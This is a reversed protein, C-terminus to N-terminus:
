WDSFQITDDEEEKSATNNTAKFWGKVEQLVQTSVSRATKKLSALSESVFRDVQEEKDLGHHHTNNGDKEARMIVTGLLTDKVKEISHTEVDAVYSLLATKATSILNKSHNSLFVLSEQNNNNNPDLQRIAFDELAMKLAEKLKANFFTKYIDYIENSTCGRRNKTAYNQEALVRIQNNLDQITRLPYTINNQPLLDKNLPRSRVQLVVRGLLDLSGIRIFDTVDTGSNNDTTTTNKNFYLLEPPFGLDHLENRGL